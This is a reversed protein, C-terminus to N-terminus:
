VEILSLSCETWGLLEGTDPDRRWAGAKRDNIYMEKTVWGGVTQDFFEVRNIFKGGASQKFMKNIRAWQEVTLYKWKLSVKGIDDRIVAGVVRGELNRGSDVLTSTVGEYSSPEPLAKGAVYVLAKFEM